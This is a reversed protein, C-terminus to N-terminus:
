KGGNAHLDALCQSDLIPVDPTVLSGFFDATEIDYYMLCDKDNCHNGHAADKHNTVMATGLDVLGLLHGFEHESVTSELKTRDSQGLGGSNDFITKGFLCLSTNRYAVGLASADTYTGDTILIYVALRNASNFTTRNKQEITAIDNITYSPKKGAPIEKQSIVIGGPKNVLSNLFSVLNNLSAADPTFGTMYQIEINLTKFSGSSLLDRGSSGTIKDNAANISPLGTSSDKKSCGPFFFFAPLLIILFSLSQKPTM